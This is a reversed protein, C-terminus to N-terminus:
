LEKMRRARWDIDVSATCKRDVLLRAYGDIGALADIQPRSYMLTTPRMFTTRERAPPFHSNTSFLIPHRPCTEDPGPSLKKIESTPEASNVLAIRTHSPPYKQAEIVLEHQM